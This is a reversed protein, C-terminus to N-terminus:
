DIIEPVPLPVIFRGGWNRVGAIQSVIEDKLNWPLILVYDPKTEFIRDPAFVQVGSGPLSLGQKHPNADVTYDLIDNRIGCYNLLTNGKAPAGYGVIRHGQDKIDILLKLLKRKTARVSDAFHAYASLDDLGARTERNRFALTRTSAPGHSGDHGVFVRLSGGHTKLEELDFVALGHRAFLREIALLSLYSFHEHYITDFYNAEILQLLHPFEITIVGNPKLLIGLGKAFDNLDPVHGLVNNAAIVDAAGGQGVLERALDIGFFRTLTHIGHVRLAVEACNAAPDIGLVPVNRAKFYQLLYGDNSAVEIVRSSANIAFREVMMSVYANAHALWSTSYSSFYTYEGHFHAERSQVDEIQVLKCVGCVFTRLPYFFEAAGSQSPKRMANAIPSMGLDVFVRELRAGCARCFPLTALADGL